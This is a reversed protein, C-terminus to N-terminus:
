HGSPATQSASSLAEARQELRNYARFTVVVMVVMWVLFEIVFLWFSLIGNYAFPGTKFAGILTAPAMLWAATINYYAVWRPYIPESNIDRFIAIAILIMWLGFPPWTYLFMYFAFDNFAQVIAADEARFAMISWGVAILTIIASTSGLLAVSAYTIFPAREMRRLLVIIPVPWITWLSWLVVAVAGGALIGARHSQVFALFDQATMAPSPPPVYSMLLVGVVAVSVVVVIGSWLFGRMVGHDIGKPTALSPQEMSFGQERTTAVPPARVLHRRRSTSRKSSAAAENGYPTMM